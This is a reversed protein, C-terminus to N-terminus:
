DLVISLGMRLSNYHGQEGSILWLINHRFDYDVFFTVIDQIMTPQMDYLIFCTELFTHSFHFLDDLSVASLDFEVHFLNSRRDLFRQFRSVDLVVLSRFRECLLDFIRELRRIDGSDFLYLILNLFNEDFVTEDARRLLIDKVAGLTRTDALRFGAKHLSEFIKGILVRSVAVYLALIRVDVAVRSHARHELVAAFTCLLEVLHAYEIGAVAFHVLRAVYMYVIEVKQRERRRTRLYIEVLEKRAAEARSVAEKALGVVDGRVSRKRAYGNLGVLVVLVASLANGIEIIRKCLAYGLCIYLVIGVVKGLSELEHRTEFVGLVCHFVHHGLDAGLSIELGRKGSVVVICLELRLRQLGTLYVFLGYFSSLFECSFVRIRFGLAGGILCHFRKHVVEVGHVRTRACLYRERGYVVAHISRGLASHEDLIQKKRGFRTEAVALRGYERYLDELNLLAYVVVLALGVVIEEFHSATATRLAKERVERKDVRREIELM